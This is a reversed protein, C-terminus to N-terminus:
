LEVDDTDSVRSAWGTIQLRFDLPGVLIVGRSRCQESKAIRQDIEDGVWPKRHPEHDPGHKRDHHREHHRKTLAPNV